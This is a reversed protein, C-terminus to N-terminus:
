KNVQSKIKAKMKRRGRFCVFSHEGRARIHYNLMSKLLTPGLIRRVEVCVLPQAAQIILALTSQWSQPMPVENYLTPPCLFPRLPVNKRPNVSCGGALNCWLGYQEFIILIDCWIYTRQLKSELISLHFM